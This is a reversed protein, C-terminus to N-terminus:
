RQWTIKLKLYQLKILRRRTNSSLRSGFKRQRKAVRRLGTHSYHRTLAFQAIRPMIMSSAPISVRTDLRNMVTAIVRFSRWPTPFKRRLRTLTALKAPSIQLRCPRPLTVYRRYMRTLPCARPHSAEDHSASTANATRNNGVRSPQSPSYLILLLGAGLALVGIGAFLLRTKM